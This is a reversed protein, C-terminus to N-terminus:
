PPFKAPVKCSIAQGGINLAMFIQHIIPAYRTLIESSFCNTGVESHSTDRIQIIKIIKILPGVVWGFDM